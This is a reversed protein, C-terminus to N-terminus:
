VVDGFQTDWLGENVSYGSIPQVCKSISDGPMLVVHGMRDYEQKLGERHGGPLRFACLMGRRMASWHPINGEAQPRDLGIWALASQARLYM